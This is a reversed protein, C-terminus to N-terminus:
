IGVLGFAGRSTPMAQFPFSVAAVRGYLSISYSAGAALSSGTTGNRSFCSMWPAASTANNDDRKTMSNIATESTANFDFPLAIAALVLWDSGTVNVTHSITTSGTIYSSGYDDPTGSAGEFAHASIWAKSPTGNWHVEIWDVGATLPQAIRAFVNGIASSTSPAFNRLDYTNGKSDTVAVPALNSGSRTGGLALWVLSGAKVNQGVTQRNTTAAATTEFLKNAYTIAM